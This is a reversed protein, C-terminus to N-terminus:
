EPLTALAIKINQHLTVQAQASAIALDIARKFGGDFQYADTQFVSSYYAVDVEAATAKVISLEIAEQTTM